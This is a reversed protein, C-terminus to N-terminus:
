ATGPSPSHTICLFRMVIGSYSRSKGGAKLGVLYSGASQTAIALAAPMFYMVM